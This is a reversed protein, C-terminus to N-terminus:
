QENHRFHWKRVGDQETWYMHRFRRLAFWNRIQKTSLGFREEIQKITAADPYPHEQIRYLVQQLVRQAEPPFVMSTSQTSRHMGKARRRVSCTHKLATGKTDTCEAHTQNSSAATKASASAPLMTQRSSCESDSSYQPHPNVNPGHAHAPLATTNPGSCTSTGHTEALSFIKGLIVDHTNTESNTPEQARLGLQPSQMSQPSPVSFSDITEANTFPSSGQLSPTAAKTAPQQEGSSTMGLLLASDIVNSGQMGSVGPHMQHLEWASHRRYNVWGSPSETMGLIQGMNSVSITSADNQVPEQPQCEAPPSTPLSATDLIPPPCILLNPPHLGASEHASPFLPLPQPQLQSLFNSIDSFLQDPQQDVAESNTNDETFTPNM